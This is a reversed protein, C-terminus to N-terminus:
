KAAKAISAELPKVAEKALDTYMTGVKTAYAVFGEYASKAFSAQLELAKEVSKVAAIQEFAASSQEFAKKTYDTTETTIAQVSKSATGFNKMVLDLNEKATKQATEFAQYM